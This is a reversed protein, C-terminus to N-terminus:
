TLAHNRHSTAPEYYMLALCSMIIHIVSCCSPLHFFRKKYNVKHVDGNGSLKRGLRSYFSRATRQGKNAKIQYRSIEM